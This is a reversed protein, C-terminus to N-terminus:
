FVIYLIFYFVQDMHFLLLWSNVENIKPVSQVDNNNNYSVVLIKNIFASIDASFAAFKINEPFLCLIWYFNM